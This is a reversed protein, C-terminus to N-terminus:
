YEIDDLASRAETRIFRVLDGFSINSETLAAYLQKIKENNESDTTESPIESSRRATFTETADEAIADIFDDFSEFQGDKDSKIKPDILFNTKELINQGILVPYDMHSRDNINFMVKKIPKGNLEIDLEIVPRYQVGGDASSVAQKQIIPISIVNKSIHSNMFRVTDGRIEINEGHLSSIEAGTDIKGKIAATGSPFFLKLIGVDGIREVSERMETPSHSPVITRIEDPRISDDEDAVWSFIIMENLNNQLLEDKHTHSAQYVVYAKKHRVIVDEITRMPAPHRRFTVGSISFEKPYEFNGSVWDSQLM